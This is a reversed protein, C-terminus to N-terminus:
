VAEDASDQIEKIVIQVSYKRGNDHFYATPHPPFTRARIINFLRRATHVADLDIRSPVEIEGASHFGGSHRSQKVRPLRNAIIDDFNNRFLELALERSKYYVTEGTDEWSIHLRAQAVIDGTDVGKDIFHLSVGCPTEDVLCWFNPHKGRNFPLYSPHLNLWGLEPISLIHGKLIHPWWALIGIRPRLLALRDLFTDVKLQDADVLIGGQGASMYLQEIRGNYGGRNQPEVVVCAVREGREILHEIVKFGVYDSALVIM